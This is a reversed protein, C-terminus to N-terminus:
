PCELGPFIGAYAGGSLLGYFYSGSWILMGAALRIGARAQAPDSEALGAAV